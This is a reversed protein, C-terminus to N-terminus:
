RTVAPIVMVRGRETYATKGASNRVLVDFVGLRWEWALSDVGAHSLEVAGNALTISGQGAAPASNWEWLVIASDATARVQAEASWGTFDTIPQGSADYLPWSRGWDAGQPIRMM